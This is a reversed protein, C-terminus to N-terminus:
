WISPSIPFRAYYAKSDELPTELAAIAM